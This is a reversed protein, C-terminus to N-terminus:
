HLTEADGGGLFTEIGEDEVTQEFADLAEQETEFPDDWVTVSGLENVVELQWGREHALRYIEVSVTIDDNTITCSLDSRIIEPDPDTM